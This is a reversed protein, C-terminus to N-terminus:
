LALEGTQSRFLTFAEDDDPYEFRENLRNTFEWIAESLPKNWHTDPFSDLCKQCQSLGFLADTEKYHPSIKIVKDKFKLYIMYKKTASMQNIFLHPKDFRLKGFNPDLKKRRRAEGM